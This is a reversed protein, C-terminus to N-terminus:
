ITKLGIFVPVNDQCKVIQFAIYNKLENQTECKLICKGVVDIGTDNCNSLIVQTDKM